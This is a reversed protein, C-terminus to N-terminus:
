IDAEKEVFTYTHSNDDCENRATCQIVKMKLTDTTMLIILVINTNYNLYPM